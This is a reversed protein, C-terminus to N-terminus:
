PRRGNARRADGRNSRAAGTREGRRCASQRLDRLTPDEAGDAAHRNAVTAEITEFPPFQDSAKAFRRTRGNRPCELTACAADVFRERGALRSMPDNRNAEISRSLWDVAEEGRGLSLKACGGPLCRRNVAAHRGPLLRGCECQAGARDDRDTPRLLSGPGKIGCRDPGAPVGRSWAATQRRGCAGLGRLLEHRRSGLEAGSRPHDNRSSGSKNCHFQGTFRRRAITKHRLLRSAPPAGSVGGIGTTASHWWQQNLLFAQHIVNFPWRRWAEARFRHDQPLPEICYPSAPDSSAQGAYTALRVAKRAAKEGLQQWKGPSAALHFAWDAYALGLSAPSVGATFRGLTAHFLRDGSTPRDVEAGALPTQTVLIPARVTRQDADPRMGAQLFQRSTRLLDAMAQTWWLAAM